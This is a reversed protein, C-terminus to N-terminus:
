YCTFREKGKGLPCAQMVGSCGLWGVFLFRFLSM